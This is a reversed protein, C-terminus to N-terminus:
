SSAEKGNQRIYDELRETIRTVQQVVDDFEERSITEEKLNQFRQKIELDHLM